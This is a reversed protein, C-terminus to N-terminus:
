RLDDFNPASRDAHTTPIPTPTMARALTTPATTPVVAAPTPVPTSVPAGPGTTNAVPQPVATPAAAMPQQDARRVAQYTPAPMRAGSFLENLRKEFRTQAQMYEIRNKVRAGAAGANILIGITSNSDRTSEEIQKARIYERWQQAVNAGAATLESDGVAASARELRQDLVASLDLWFPDGLDLYDIATSWGAKSCLSSYASKARMLAMPQSQDMTAIAADLAPDNARKAHGRAADMDREMQQFNHGDADAKAAALSAAGAAREDDERGIRRVDIRHNVDALAANLRDKAAQGPDEKQATRLAAEIQSKAGDLDGAQLATQAATEREAVTQQKCGTLISTVAFLAALVTLKNM